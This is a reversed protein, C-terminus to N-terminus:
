VGVYVGCVVSIACCRAYSCTVGCEPAPEGIRLRINRELRSQMQAGSAIGAM